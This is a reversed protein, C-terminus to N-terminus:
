NEITAGSDVNIGGTWDGLPNIEADPYIKILKKNQCQKSLHDTKEM